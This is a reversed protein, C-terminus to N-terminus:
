WGLLSRPLSPRHRELQHQQGRRQHQQHQEHQPGTPSAPSTQDGIQGRLFGRHHCRHAAVFACLSLGLPLLHHLLHQGSPGAELEQADAPGPRSRTGIIVLEHVLFPQLAKGVRRLPRSLPHAGDPHTDLALGIPRHGGQPVNEGRHAEDAPGGLDDGNRGRRLQGDLTGRNFLAVVGIIGDQCEDELEARGGVLVNLDEEPGLNRAGAVCMGFPVGVVDGYGGRGCPIGSGDDGTVPGDGFVDCDVAVVHAEVDVLLVLCELEVPPDHGGIRTGGVGRHQDIGLPVIRDDLTRLAMGVESFGNVGQSTRHHLRLIHIVPLGLGGGAGDEVVVGLGGEGHRWGRVVLAVGDGEGDAESGGRAQIHGEGGLGFVVGGGGRGVVRRQGGGAVGDGGVLGSRWGLCDAHRRNLVEEALAILRELQLHRHRVAMGSRRRSLADAGNLVVLGLDADFIGDVRVLILAVPSHNEGDPEVGWGRSTSHTHVPRRSRNGRYGTEVTRSSRAGSALRPCACVIHSIRIAQGNRRTGGGSGEDHVDAVVSMVLGGVLPEPDLEGVRGGVGGDLAVGAHALDEVVVARRHHRHVHRRGRHLLPIRQVELHGKIGDGLVRDLDVVRHVVAGGREGTAVVADVKGM